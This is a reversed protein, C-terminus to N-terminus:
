PLLGVGDSFENIAFLSGLALEVCLLRQDTQILSQEVKEGGALGGCLSSSFNGSDHASSEPRAVLNAM